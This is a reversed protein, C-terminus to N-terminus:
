RGEKKKAFSEAFGAQFIADSDKTDEGSLLAELKSIDTIIDRADMFCERKAKIANRAKDDQLDIDLPKAIEQLLIEFGEKGAEILRLYSKKVYENM